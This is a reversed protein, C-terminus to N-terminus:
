KEERRRRRVAGAGIGTAILGLGVATGSPCFTDSTDASDDAMAAASSPDAIGLLLGLALAGSVVLARTVSPPAHPLQNSEEIRNTTQNTKM